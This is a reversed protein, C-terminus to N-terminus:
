FPGEVEPVPAGADWTTPPGGDADHHCGGDGNHEDLDNDDDDPPTLMDSECCGFADCGQVKCGDKDNGQGSNGDYFCDIKGSHADDMNDGPIGTPSNQGGNGHGKGKHGRLPTPTLTAPDPVCPAGDMASLYGTTSPPADNGNGCAMLLGSGVMLAGFVFRRVLM